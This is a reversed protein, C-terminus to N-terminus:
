KGDIVILVRVGNMHHFQKKIQYLCCHIILANLMIHQEGENNIFVFFLFLYFNMVKSKCMFLFFM